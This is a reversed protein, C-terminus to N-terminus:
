TTTYIGIKMLLKLSALNFEMSCEITKTRIIEYSFTNYGSIVKLKICKYM